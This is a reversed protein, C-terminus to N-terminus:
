LPGGASRVANLIERETLIGGAILVSVGLMAALTMDILNLAIALIVGGFVSLIIISQLEL